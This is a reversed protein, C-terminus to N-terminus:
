EGPLPQPTKIQNIIEKIRQEVEETAMLVQENSFRIVYLGMENLAQSRILDDEHQVREAHYGGDVEIVLNYYPLLFDVIYDGVIHQRLVKTGIAEGKLWKWLQMEALTAYKRNERAFYRLREYRDPAATRYNWMDSYNLNLGTRFIDYQAFCFM